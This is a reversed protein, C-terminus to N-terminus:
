LLNKDWSILLVIKNWTLLAYLAYAFIYANKTKTNVNSQKVTVSAMQFRVILYIQCFM